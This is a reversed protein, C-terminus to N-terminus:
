FGSDGTPPVPAQQRPEAVGPVPSDSSGSGSSMGGQPDLIRASVIRDGRGMAYVSNLGRVVKGFVAYQGNFQPMARKLIYFQCSASNPDSARAMAVIGPQNHSLRRDIQLKINRRRGSEPDIFDGTGNGNPDGGQILQPEVRHFILGDYFGRSVLDLFNGATYPVVSYYVRITIPGKTTNMLVYQDQEQQAQVPGSVSLGVFCCSLSLFLGKIM